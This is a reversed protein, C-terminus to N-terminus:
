ELNSVDLERESISSRSCDELKKEEEEFSVEVPKSLLSRAQFVDKKKTVRAAQAMEAIDIDKFFSM